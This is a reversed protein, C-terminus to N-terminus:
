KILTLKEYVEWFDPYSKKVCEAGMITVPCTSKTAAIALAMAIRHDNCADIEGGTFETVPNVVLGDETVTVQGGIANLANAIATLRDSEKIRLRSANVITLGKKSFCGAVALIPVLDPIDEASVTVEDNYQLNELIELIKKDGQISNKPLNIINIDSGLYNATLFFAAQSFDGEIDLHTFKYKQNGKIKYTNTYEEIIIGCKELYKVTMDTYPKSEHKTTLIIESDGNLLPLAFLLGSIFQSSVDGELEFTGSSLKGNIKFPLKQATFNIGKKSFERFYPTLPRDPLRGRGTFTVNLGMACAIPILFRLTSGSEGCDILDCGNYFNELSKKTVAIDKSSIPFLKETDFQEGSLFACILARHLLSKSPPIEINGKLKQPQLKINM